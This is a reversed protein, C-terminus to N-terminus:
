FWLNCCKCAKFFPQTGPMGMTCWTRLFRDFREFREAKAKHGWPDARAIPALSAGPLTASLHARFEATRRLNISRHYASRTTAQIRSFSARQSPPLTTLTQTMLSGASEDQSFYWKRCLEAFKELDKQSVRSPTTSRERRGSPTIPRSASPPFTPSTPSVLRNARRVPSTPPSVNPPLDYLLDRELHSPSSQYHNNHYSPSSPPINAAPTGPSAAAFSLPGPRHRAPDVAYSRTASM